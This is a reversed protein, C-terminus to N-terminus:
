RQEVTKGQNKMMEMLTQENKTKQSMMKKDKMVVVKRVNGRMVGM